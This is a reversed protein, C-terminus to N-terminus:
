GRVVLHNVVSQVGTVMCALKVAQQRARLSPVVGSLYVSGDRTSVSVPTLDTANEEILKARVSNTIVADEPTETSTKQIITQCGMVASFTLAVLISAILPKM